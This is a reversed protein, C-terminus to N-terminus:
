QGIKWGGSNAAVDLSSPIMFSPHGAHFKKVIDLTNAIGFENMFTFPAKISLALKCSMDLDDVNTIGLDIIFSTLSFYAGLFEDRIFDNMQAPVEVVEGKMAINWNAKNNIADHLLAPTKFWSMLKQGMEDLGHATIQNGGTLNLATFPGVGLGLSECAVKDIQKENGWGKELCLIAIQCLGEFIPDIAYGYSSKVVIPVKGITKYFELLREVLATDTELSPILEVIPNRDAPFFYHAM